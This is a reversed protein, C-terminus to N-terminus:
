HVPGKPRYRHDVEQLFRDLGNELMGSIKSAHHYCPQLRRALSRLVLVTRVLLVGLLLNVLKLDGAAEDLNAFIVM